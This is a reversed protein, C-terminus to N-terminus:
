NMIRSGSRIRSGVMCYIQQNKGPIFSIVSLDEAEPLVREMNLHDYPLIMLKGNNIGRKFTDKVGKKREEESLYASEFIVKGVGWKM